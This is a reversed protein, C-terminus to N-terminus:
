KLFLAQLAVHGDRGILVRRERCLLAGGVKEPLEREILFRSEHKVCQGFDLRGVHGVAEDWGKAAELVENGAADGM